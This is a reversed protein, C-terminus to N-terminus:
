FQTTLTTLWAPSLEVLAAELKKDIGTIIILGSLTLVSGFIMKLMKGASLVHSRWRALIERSLLGILLLPIAAGMGFVLMTVSVQVLNKGQAALLSVAGLTPGVCPSWAMGLLVGISFQSASSEGIAGLQHHAWGSVPGAALVFQEQLYPMLLFAGVALLMVASFKRFVGGDLGMSFGALAVFLGVVVFTLVLGAALAVPGYRSQSAATGLVVPLLPLVCPSVITLLGALFALALSGAM